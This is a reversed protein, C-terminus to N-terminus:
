STEELTSFSACNTHSTGDVAKGSAVTVPVDWNQANWSILFPKGSGQQAETEATTRSPDRCSAKNLTFSYRLM